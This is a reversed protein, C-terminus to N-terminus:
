SRLTLLNKSSRRKSAGFLIRRKLEEEHDEEPDPSQIYVGLSVVLLLRRKQNKTTFRCTRAYTPSFYTSVPM